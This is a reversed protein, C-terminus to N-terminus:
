KWRLIPLLDGLSIIGKPYGTPDTIYVRHTRVTALLILVSEFSSTEDCTIPAFIGSQTGKEIFKQTSGNFYNFSKEAIGRLDSASFNACIKGQEDVLALGSIRNNYLMDLAEYLRADIRITVPPHVIGIKKISKTAKDQPMFHKNAAAFSIIDSQTIVNTLKNNSDVVAVRHLRFMTFPACFIDLLQELSTSQIVTVPPNTQSYNLIDKVEVDFFSHRAYNREQFSLSELNMSNYKWTMLIYGAIDLVDVFGILNEKDVLIPASLINEQDLTQLAKRLTTTKHFWILRKAKNAIIDMVTTTSLLEKWLLNSM